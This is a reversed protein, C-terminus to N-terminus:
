SVALCPATKRLRAKIAQALRAVGTEIQVPTATTFTLRMTNAKPTLAHFSAGPIFAVGCALADEFLTASDIAPPLTVWLFMGGAPRTWAVGDPMHEALCKLMLACQARYRLRVAELHADYQGDTLLAHAIRQTIGTTHLDSAQKAQLLKIMLEEPAVLYGVRLGPAIVKSFSGIHVVDDPAMSLLSAPTVGSYVLEGYPDDEVLLLGHRKARSVLAIRRDLPLTRGTPNQFNPQVYLLRADRMSAEDLCEPILGSADSPAEEFVPEYQALAQVAGLYTPTEILVRSGPDILVRAVLDLAQQSGTTVLVQAPSVTAGSRSLRAAIAERLPAYGESPGYQLAGTADRQLIQGVAASLREVPLAYPSPLGGAFSIIDPREAVKLLERLSSPTMRQARAALQWRGAPPIHRDM